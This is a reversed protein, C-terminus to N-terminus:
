NMKFFKFNSFNFEINMKKLFKLSSMVAAAKSILGSLSGRRPRRKPNTLLRPWVRLAKALSGRALDLFKGLIGSLNM